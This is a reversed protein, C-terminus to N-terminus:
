SGLPAGFRRRRRALQALHAGLGTGAGNLLLDMLSPSRTPLFVQSLEISLSLLTGYFIARALSLKPGYLAILLAGLPIFGLFNVYLDLDDALHRVRRVDWPDIARAAWWGVPTETMAPDLYDIARGDIALWAARVEGVWPRDLSAENGFMVPLDRDWGSLPDEAFAVDEHLIGDVVLRLRRGEIDLVIAHWGPDAFLGAVRFAPGGDENSGPRRLQLILDAGEQGLTLNRSRIGHSVSLIRAPGTQSPEMTRVILLWRLDRAQRVDALWDAAVATRVIGPGPFSLGGQDPREVQNVVYRSPWAFDFPSLGLAWYGALALTLVVVKLAIRVRM